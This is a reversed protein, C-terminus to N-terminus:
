EAMSAGQDQVELRWFQSLYHSKYVAWGRANKLLLRCASFCQVHNFPFFFTDIKKERGLVHIHFLYCLHEIGFVCPLM